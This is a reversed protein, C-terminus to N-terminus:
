PYILNVILDSGSIRSASPWRTRINVFKKKIDLKRMLSLDSDTDSPIPLSLCGLIMPLVDYTYVQMYRDHYGEISFVGVLHHDAIEADERYKM